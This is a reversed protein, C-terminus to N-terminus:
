PRRREWVPPTFLFPVQVAQRVPRGGKLAPRFRATVLAERAARAFLSDPAALVEVSGPEVVGATDIVFEVVVTGGVGLRYLSDPYSPRLGVSDPRAPVDVQDPTHVEDSGVTPDASPPTAPDVAGTRRPGAPRSWIAIVGCRELGRPTSFEAPTTGLGAYVEIGEVGSLDIMDVDFEGASAPFGDVFVLPACNSSRLRIMRGQSRSPGIRVGPIERLMDSVSTTNARDIRARTVFHGIQLRSRANFGALRADYAERQATVQVQALVEPMAELRIEVAREEGTGLRLQQTHAVYGLRRATLTAPGALLGAIRYGGGEDTRVRRGSGPVGVEVGPLPTGLSDRVTGRIVAGTRQAAAASALTATLCAAVILRFVGGRITSSPRVMSQM